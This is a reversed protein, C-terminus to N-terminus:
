GGGEKGRWRMLLLLGGGDNLDRAGEAGKGRNRGGLGVQEEIGDGRTWFGTWSCGCGRLLQSHCSAMVRAGMVATTAAPWVVVVREKGRGILSWALVHALGKKRRM